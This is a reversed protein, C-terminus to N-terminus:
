NKFGNPAAFTLTCHELPDHSPTGAHTLPSDNTLRAVRGACSGIGEHGRFSMLWGRDLSQSMSLLPPVRVRSGPMILSSKPCDGSSVVRSVYAHHPVARRVSHGHVQVTEQVTSIALERPM